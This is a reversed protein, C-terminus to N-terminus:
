QMTDARLVRILYIAYRYVCESCVVEADAVGEVLKSRIESWKPPNMLGNLQHGVKINKNWIWNPLNRTWNWKALWCFLSKNWSNLFERICPEELKITIRNWASMWSPLTSMVSVAWVVVGARAVGLARAGPVHVVRFPVCVIAALHPRHGHYPWMRLRCRADFSNGANSDEVVFAWCVWDDFSMSCTWAMTTMPQMWMSCHIYPFAFRDLDFPLAALM